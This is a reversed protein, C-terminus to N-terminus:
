NKNIEHYKFYEEENVFFSVDKIIVNVVSRDLKLYDIISLYDTSPLGVSIEASTVKKIKASGNDYHVECTVLSFLTNM